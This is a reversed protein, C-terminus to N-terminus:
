QLVDTGDVHLKHLGISRNGDSGSGCVDLCCRNSAYRYLLARALTVLASSSLVPAGASSCDLGSEQSRGARVRSQPKRVLKRLFHTAGAHLVVAEQAQLDALPRM